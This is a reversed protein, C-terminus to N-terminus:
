KKKKKKAGDDAPAEEAAPKEEAPEPAPEPAAEPVPEPAPEETAFGKLKEVLAQTGPVKEALFTTIAQIAAADFVEVDRGVLAILENYVAQAAYYDFRTKLVDQLKDRKLM